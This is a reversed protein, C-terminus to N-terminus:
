KLARQYAPRDRLSGLYNATNTMYEAFGSRDAWDLVGGVVIDATTLSEGLLFPRSDLHDELPAVVRRFKEQEDPTAAETRRDPPLNFSRMYAYAVCAELTSSGFSLWQYYSAREPTGLPPAMGKDIHGDAIHMCIAITELIVHDGDVLAPVAGLPHIKRYESSKHEREQPDLRVLEYPEELEEFLWRPRFARTQAIYYLKM